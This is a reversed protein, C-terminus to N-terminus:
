KASSSIINLMKELLIVLTPDTQSGTITNTTPHTNQNRNNSNNNNNM